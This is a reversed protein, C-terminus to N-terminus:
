GFLNRTVSKVSENDNDYEQYSDILRGRQRTPSLTLVSNSNALLNSMPSLLISNANKRKMLPSGLSLSLGGPSFPVHKNRSPSFKEAVEMFDLLKGPVNSRTSSPMNFTKNTIPSWEWQSKNLNSGRNVPTRLVNYSESTFLPSYLPTLPNKRKMFPRMARKDIDPSTTLVSTQTNEQELNLYSAGPSTFGVLQKTEAKLSAEDTKVTM